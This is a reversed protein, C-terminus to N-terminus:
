KENNNEDRLKKVLKVSEIMRDSRKLIKIIYDDTEIIENKRPIRGVTSTILGAVTEYDDSEPLPVPLYENVDNIGSAAAVRFENESIKEVLPKEEDYEDQIEGVIEELIDELTVLGALGGFSDLVMAIHIRNALLKNLVNNLLDDEQVFYAKRMFDEPNGKKLGILVPLLDKSYIVGVINDIKEDYVPLRTYGESIFMQVIEDFNMGTEIAIVKGRPVMIQKVDKEAFEFINNILDHEAVEILGSKKSEELIYRIEDSSHLQDMEKVPSFGALRLIWNAFTNLLWIFPSFLYYFAMLPGSTFLAVQESRQIALSKPALEGFVIHLITITVFAIPLSISHIFEPSLSFNFFQFINTIIVAVVPEGIWGLGLSALTIGLQTASLYTDLNQTIKKALQALKSGERAKLEIQSERVKVIAFEAAVFFGNLFVLFFAIFIQWIM